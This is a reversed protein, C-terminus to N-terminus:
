LTGLGSLHVIRLSATKSPDPDPVSCGIVKAAGSIVRVCQTPDLALKQAISADDTTNLMRAESVGPIGLKAVRENTLQKAEALADQAQPHFYVAAGSCDAQCIAAVQTLSQTLSERWQLAEGEAAFIESAKDKVVYFIVGFVLCGLVLVAACGIALIKGTNTKPPAPPAMSDGGFGGTNSGGGGGFSGTSSGGGFGGGMPQAPATPASMNAPPNAFGAGPTGSGFGSQPAQFSPQAPQQFGSSAFPAQGEITPARAFDQSAPPQGAPPQAGFAPATPAFAGPATPAFAGPTPASAGASPAFAGASPPPGPPAGIPGMITKEFALNKGGTGAAPAAASQPAPQPAAAPPPAAAPKAATAPAAPAQVGSMMITGKFKAKQKPSLEFACSVCKEAQDTNPTGCNPCFAM